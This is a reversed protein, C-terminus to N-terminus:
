FTLVDAQGHAAFGCEDGDVVHFARFPVGGGDAGRFAIEGVRQDAPQARAECGAAQQMVSLAFPIGAFAQRSPRERQIPAAVANRQPAVFRPDGLFAVIVLRCQLRRVIENLANRPPEIKMGARRHFGIFVWPMVEGLLAAQRVIDIRQVGLEVVRFFARAECGHEFAPEILGGTENKRHLAPVGLGAFGPAGFAPERALTMEM